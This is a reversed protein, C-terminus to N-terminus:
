RTKRMLYIANNLAFMATGDDRFHYDLLGECGTELTAIAKEAFGLAAAQRAPETLVGQFIM